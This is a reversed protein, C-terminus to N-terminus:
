GPVLVHLAIVDPAGNRRIEHRVGTMNAQDRVARHMQLLHEARRDVFSSLEQALGSLGALADTVIVAANPLNGSPRAQLLSEVAAEGLWQRVEPGGDALGQFALFTCEEVPYQRRREGEIRDLMFRCRVLLLTSMTTVARTAFAGSRGQRMTGEPDLSSQLIYGALAEVFPHTRVLLIQEAVPTGAFVATFEDPWNDPLMDRLPMPVGRLSVQLSGDARRGATGGVSRTAREVFRSVDVSSGMEQTAQSWNRAAEAKIGEQAFMTRSRKEREARRDWEAQLEAQGQAVYGELGPLVDGADRDTQMLWEYVAGVVKEAGAPVPVSVGTAARIRQHREILVKFVHGDVHNDEGFVFAIEVDPSRQNFRDVRGERQELRTPNWPLDYHVVADFHDQLNIGESLCDTAVLVCAQHRKLAEVREEREAPPLEGTVATVVLGRQRLRDSLEEVLYQATAIYRCFVIPRRGGELMKRLLPVLTALKPDRDGMLREALEHLQREATSLKRQKGSAAAVVEEELLVGGTVDGAGDSEAHDSADVDLVASQGVRDVDEPTADGEGAARGRLTAMAAAPSSSITRLLGIAAWIHVRQRRRDSGAARVRERCFEIAGDLLTRYDASLRYTAHPLDLRKPFPTDAGAFHEIDARRRQVLFRALSRRDTEHAPGTLDDPLNALSPDLLTVLSRFAGTNGSHPTATVLVLHRNLDRAVKELLAHREQRSRLGDMDVTCAHAEDVIVCDPCCRLFEDKYRSGKVFDISIVAQPYAEFISQNAPLNRELRAATSALVLVPDLHFKRRLERQWQEALHPPCLVALRQADGRALLEAAILSAEITKGIGVDDAILIRVTSRRLGVLMPVLQYARPECGLSAFSRFPGASSRSALRVADRLLECAVFDGIMDRSPPAFTAPVVAELAPLVGVLEADVGYLPRLLALDATTGPQVIWERGRVTVITGPTM